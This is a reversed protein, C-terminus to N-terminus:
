GEARRWEPGAVNCEGCSLDVIKASEVLQRPLPFGHEVGFTAVEFVEGWRDALIVAAQDGGIGLRLRAADEEDGLVPFIQAAPSGSGPVVGILSTGWDRLDAVIDAIESLYSACRACRPHVVVLLTSRNGSGPLRLTGGPRALSLQPLIDGQQVLPRVTPSPSQGAPAASTVIDSM